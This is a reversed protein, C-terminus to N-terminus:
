ADIQINPDFIEVARPAGLFRIRKALQEERSALTGSKDNRLESIRAQGSAPHYRVRRAKAGRLSSAVVNLRERQLYAEVFDANAHGHNGQSNLMNAGGFVKVEMRERLAGRSVLVNVLREISYSGFRLEASPFEDTPYTQSPLLFHNM